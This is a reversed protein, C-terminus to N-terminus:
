WKNWQEACLMKCWLWKMIMKHRMECMCMWQMGNCAMAYKEYHRANVNTEIGNWKMDKCENCEMEYLEYKEIDQM